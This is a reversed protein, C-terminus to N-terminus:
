LSRIITGKQSNISSKIIHKKSASKRTATQLQVKLQPPRPSLQHSTWTGLADEQSSFPRCAQITAVDRPTRTNRSQQEVQKMVNITKLCVPTSRETHVKRQSRARGADDPETEMLERMRTTSQYNCNTGFTQRESAFSSLLTRRKNDVQKASKIRM